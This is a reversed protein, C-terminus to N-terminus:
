VDGDVEMKAAQIQSRLNEIAEQPTNGVGVKIPKGFNNKLSFRGERIEDWIEYCTVDDLDIEEPVEMFDCNWATFYGGSYVGRYRDLVITLPYIEYTRKENSTM